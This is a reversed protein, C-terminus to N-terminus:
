NKRFKLLARLLVEADIEIADGSELIVFVRGEATLRLIERDSSLSFKTDENSEILREKYEM